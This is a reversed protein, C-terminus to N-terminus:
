GVKKAPPGEGFVDAIAADDGHKIKEAIRKAEPELVRNFYERGNMEVTGVTGSSILRCVRGTLGCAPCKNIPPDTIRAFEEFVHGCEECIYDYIPM